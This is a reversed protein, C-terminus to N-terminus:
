IETDKCNFCLRQFCLYEFFCVMSFLYFVFQVFLLLVRIKLEIINEHLEMGIMSDSQFLKYQSELVDILGLTWHLLYIFSSDTIKKKLEKAKDSNISNLTDVIIPYLKEFNFVAARISIWRIDSTKILDLRLDEQSELFKFLKYRNNSNYIFGYVENFVKEFKKYLNDNRLAHVYM